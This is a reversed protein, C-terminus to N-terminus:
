IGFDNYEDWYGNWAFRMVIKGSNYTFCGFAYSVGLSAKYYTHKWSPYYDWSYNKGENGLCFAGWTWKDYSHGTLRSTIQGSVGCWGDVREYIWAVVGGLETWNLQNWISGYCRESAMHAVAKGRAALALPVKVLRPPKLVPAKIPIEPEPETTPSSSTVFTQVNGYILLDAAVDPSTTTELLQRGNGAAIAAKVSAALIARNSAATLETTPAPLTSAVTEATRVDAPVTVVSTTTETASAVGTAALQCICTMVVSAFLALFGKKGM